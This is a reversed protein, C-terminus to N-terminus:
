GLWRRLATWAEQKDAFARTYAPSSSPLTVLEVDRLRALEARGIVSAKGGNFAVARLAPLEQVLAELDNPAHDEIRADLSGIRKASAVVDWLGVRAELLAELRAAYPLAILDVGVLGGVLRWFQNRPHAYYESRELSREGPLSGLILLRVKPDVVAPFSHKRDRGDEVALASM